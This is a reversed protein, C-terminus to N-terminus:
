EGAQSFYFKVGDKFGGEFGGLDIKPDKVKDYLSKGSKAAGVAGAGPGTYGTEISSSGVTGKFELDGVSVKASFNDTLGLAFKKAAAMIEKYDDLVLSFASVAWISSSVGVLGGVIYDLGDKWLDTFLREVMAGREGTDLVSITRYTYPDVELWAWRPTGNVLAPQDPFLVTGQSKMLQNFVPESMSRKLDDEMDYRANQTLWLFQTDAPYHPLMQFFGLGGGPMVDAELRSAFLGSMINFGHVAEPIAEPNAM